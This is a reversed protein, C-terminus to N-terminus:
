SKEFRTEPYLPKAPLRNSTLNKLRAVAEFGVQRPDVLNLLAVL